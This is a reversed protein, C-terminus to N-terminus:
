EGEVGSWITVQVTSTNFSTIHTGDQYTYDISNPTLGSQCVVALRRGDSSFQVKILNGPRTVLRAIEQGSAVNWVYVTRDGCCTALTKGDPSFTVDSIDGSHNLTALTRGSQAEVVAISYRGSNRAILRGGSAVARESGTENKRPKSAGPVEHWAEVDWEVASRASDTIM